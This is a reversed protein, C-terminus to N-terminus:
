PFNFELTALTRLGLRPTVHLDEAAGAIAYAHRVFPAVGEVELGAAFWQVPRWRFGPALGAAAWLERPARNAVGVADAIEAGLELGGCLQLAFMRRVLTPCVRLGGSALRLEAGVSAAQGPQPLEARSWYTARAELRLRPWLLAVGAALGPVFRPSPGIGAGVQVFLGIRPTRRLQPAPREPPMPVPARESALPDAALPPLAAISPAPPPSPDRTPDVLHTTVQLPEAAVALIVATAEALAACRSSTLVRHQTGDADHLTLRLTWGAGDRALTAVADVARPAGGAILRTTAALVEPQGPCGAVTPWALTVAGDPPAALRALLTLATFM